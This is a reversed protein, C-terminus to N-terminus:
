KSTVPQEVPEPTAPTTSIPTVYKSTTALTEDLKALKSGVNSNGVYSNILEAVDLGMTEKLSEQIGALTKTTYGSVQSVGNGEGGDIITIKDINSIPEAAYKVIEPYVKLLELMIAQQGYEKYAEALRQAAEAKARGVEAINLSESEAKARGVKAISEAEAQANLELERAAAEADLIRKQKDAEAKQIDAYRKADAAKEVEAELKKAALLVEETEIEIQKRRDVLEIEKQKEVLAKQLEADQLQYAKDAIAQQVDKEKKYEALKMQKDKESLAIETARRNEAERAQKMADAKQIITIKEAEAEAIEANKKVEAIQPRGLSELYGNSDTVDKITFSVIKLGMKELDQSAVQQVQAGFEDRERYIEEVTLSGLIARLHGELVEQAEEELEQTEKGLYQEAATAIEEVASGVKIIVTGTASIPVGQRTYVESASVELKSSMLSLRKGQQFIPWLFTGGGRVIKMKNNEKDTFVNPGKGLFSGSVILATDPSVTVYRGIIAVLLVVVVAALGIWIIYNEM